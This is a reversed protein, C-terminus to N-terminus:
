AMEMGIVVEVIEGVQTFEGRIDESASPRHSAVKSSSLMRVPAMSKCVDEKEGRYGGINVVEWFRGEGLKVQTCSRPQEKNVKVV